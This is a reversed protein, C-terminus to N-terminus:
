DKVVTVPSVILQYVTSAFGQRNGAFVTTGDASVSLVTYRYYSYMIIDGVKVSANSDGILNSVTFTYSPFSPSVTTTWIQSGEQVETITISGYSTTTTAM